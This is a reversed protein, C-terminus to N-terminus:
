EFSFRLVKATACLTTRLSLLVPITEIRSSPESFNFVVAAAVLRTFLQFFGSVLPSRFSGCLFILFKLIYNETKMNRSIVRSYLEHLMITVVAAAATLM